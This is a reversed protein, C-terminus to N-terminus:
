PATSGQRVPVPAANGCYPCKVKKGAFEAGAKIRKTCNPCAFVVLRTDAVALQKKAAATTTNPQKKQV